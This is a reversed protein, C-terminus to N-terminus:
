CGSMKRLYISHVRLLRDLYNALPSSITKDTLASIKAYICDRSVEDLSDRADLLSKLRELYADYEKLVAQRLVENRSKNQAITTRLHQIEALMKQLLVVIESLPRYRPWTYSENRQVKNIGEDTGSDNELSKRKKINKIGLEERNKLFSAINRSGSEDHIYEKIIEFPLSAILPGFRQSLDDIKGPVGLSRFAIRLDSLSSLSILREVFKKKGHLFSWSLFRLVLADYDSGLLNRAKLNAGRLILATVIDMAADVNANRRELFSAALRKFRNDEHQDIISLLNYFQSSPFENSAAFLATLNLKEFCRSVDVNCELLFKVVKSSRFLCAILLPTWGDKTKVDADMGQALLWRALEVNDHAAAYHLCTFERENHLKTVDCGKLLEPDHRYLEILEFFNLQLLKEAVNKIEERPLKLHKFIFALLACQAFDDEQKHFLASFFTRAQKDNKKFLCEFWNEPIWAGSQNLFQILPLITQTIDPTFELLSELCSLKGLAVYVGKQILLSAISVRLQVPARCVYYLCYHKLGAYNLIGHDLLLKIAQLSCNGLARWWIDGGAGLYAWVPAGKEILFGALALKNNELALILPNHRFYGNQNAAGDVCAGRSLLFEALAICNKESGQNFAVFALPNEIGEISLHGEDLLLRIKEVQNSTTSAVAIRLLVTKEKPSFLTLVGEQLKKKLIDPEDESFAAFIDVWKRENFDLSSLEYKDEFKESCASYARYCDVVCLTLESAHSSFFVFIACTYLSLRPSCIKKQLSKDM